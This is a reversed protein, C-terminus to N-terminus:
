DPTAAILSIKPRGRERTVGFVIEGGTEDRGARALEYRGSARGARGGSASLDQVEYGSIDNGRFQTRYTDLVVSRGQQTDSPFVRQVDRALVRSLASSDETAVAASFGEVASRVDGETLPGTTDSSALEPGAQVILVAAVVASAAAGALLALAGRRPWAQHRKLAPAHEPPEWSDAPPASPGRATSPLISTVMAATPADAPAAAGTAVTREEETVHEGAAAALAARGLDGASPYRDEPAKALARAVVADFAGPVPARASVSPAEEHLHASMTAPVTDRRFPAEGTLAAFLVCGLAYVDSRADCPEGRLHEPSMYDVTGVWAGSETFRSDSSSLRSLGFDGLYVHERSLLVNAPKVDRHVLGAAHAADLGAAVQAVVRAARGYRLRGGRKLEGHLDTGDVYRMVLYLRGRDEGAAHVPVLNPHDISAALRAELAFRSRLGPDRARDAAIVKIAVPRGLGLQTARYVIGMGGRGAVGEIRCDAIESGPALEQTPHTDTIPPLAGLDHCDRISRV